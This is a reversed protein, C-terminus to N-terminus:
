CQTRCGPLKGVHQAPWHWAILRAVDRAIVSRAIHRAVMARPVTQRVVWLGAPRHWTVPPRDVVNRSFFHGEAEAGVRGRGDQKVDAGKHTVVHSHEDLFVTLEWCARERM